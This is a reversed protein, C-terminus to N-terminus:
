EHFIVQFHEELRKFMPKVHKKWLEGDNMTLNHRRRLEQMIERINLKGVSLAYIDKELPDKLSMDEYSGSLLFSDWDSHDYQLSMLTRLPTWDGLERPPIKDLESFKSNDYYRFYMGVAPLPQMVTNLWRTQTNYLKMWHFHQLLRKKSITPLMKIMTTVMDQLFEFRHRRLEPRSLEPTRCYCDDPTVSTLYEDDEVTLGFLDPRRGIPTEPYPALFGSNAEFLGPAAYLLDKVLQHSKALSAETEYPGGIIFNGFISIGDIENVLQCLDRLKALDLRKGYRRLTEHDGSEIGVQLRILGTEKMAKLLEPHQSLTDVRAECYWIFDRKTRQRYERLLDCFRMVREPEAVFTDDIIDFAKYGCKDINSSIEQFVRDASRFRYGKGHVAQFCFTCSNPCGRGSSINLRLTRPVLDRDPDPLADLDTIFQSPAGERYTNGERYILGPVADPSGKHHIIYDALQPMSYEGEGKLIYDFPFSKGLTSGLASALPGGAVLASKPSWIKIRKALKVVHHINDTMTYFGVVAPKYGMFIYQLQINRLLFLDINSLIRVSYNQQKLVTALSLVGLNVQYGDLIYFSEQHILMVDLKPLIPINPM